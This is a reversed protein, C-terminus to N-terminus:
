EVGAEGALSSSLSASQPPFQQLFLPRHERGAVRRLLVPMACRLWVTIVPAAKIAARTGPDAFAGGGTALVMPGQSMLRTIVRREGDRFHAEGYRAFIETIPIGAAAEIETDADLFPLQMRAALRKGISTKGAGPMGVLVITPAASIEPLPSEQPALNRSM